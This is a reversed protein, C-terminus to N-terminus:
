SIFLNKMNTNKIFKKNPKFQSLFSKVNFISFGIKNFSITFFIDLSHLIFTNTLSSFAYLSKFEFM